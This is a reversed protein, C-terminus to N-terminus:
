KMDCRDKQGRNLARSNGMIRREVKMVTMRKTKAYRGCTAAKATKWPGPAQSLAVNRTNPSLEAM